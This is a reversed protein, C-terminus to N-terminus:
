SAAVSSFRLFNRVISMKVERGRTQLGSDDRAGASLTKLFVQVHM